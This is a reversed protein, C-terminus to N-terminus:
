LNHRLEDHSTIKEAIDLIWQKGGTEVLLGIPRFEVSVWLGFEYHYETISIYEIPSISFDGVIMKKGLRTKSVM